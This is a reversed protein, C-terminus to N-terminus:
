ALSSNQLVKHVKDRLVNIKFPKELVDDAGAAPALHLISPSASLMIIPVSKTKEDTKLQRCLDLGDVGSLQKDVLYLDPVRGLDDLVEDASSCVIIHYDPADFILKMVDQIAPDDEVLVITKM